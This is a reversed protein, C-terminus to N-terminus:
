QRIVKVKSHENVTTDKVMLSRSGEATVAQQSPLKFPDTQQSVPGHQVRLLPLFRVKNQLLGVEEDTGSVISCCLVDDVQVTQLLQTLGPGPRCDSLQDMRNSQHASASETQTSPTAESVSFWSFFSIRTKTSFPLHSSSWNICDQNQRRNKMTAKTEGEPSEM